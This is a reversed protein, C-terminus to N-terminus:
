SSKKKKVISISKKVFTIYGREEENYKYTIETSKPSVGVVMARADILSVISVAM